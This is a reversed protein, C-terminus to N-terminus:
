SAATSFYIYPFVPIGHYGVRVWRQFRTGLIEGQVQPTKAAQLFSEILQRLDSPEGPYWTGAIPSPRIDRFEQTEM